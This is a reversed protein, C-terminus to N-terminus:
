GGGGGATDIDSARISRRRANSRAQSDASARRFAAVSDGSACDSRGVSRALTVAFRARTAASRLAIASSM